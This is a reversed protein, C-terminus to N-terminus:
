AVKTAPRGSGCQRGSEVDHGCVEARALSDGPREYLNVIDGVFRALPDVDQDM